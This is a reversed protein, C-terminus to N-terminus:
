GTGVQKQLDTYSGTELHCLPLPARASLRTGCGPRSEIALEGSVLDLRERMSALGFGSAQGIRVLDPNFGVGDDQVELTLRDAERKLLVQACHAHSHHTINSLAEQAVHYFTLELDLPLRESARGEVQITVQMSGDANLEDARQGLAAELGWQDLIKPHLEMALHRIDSLAHTILKRLNQLRQTDAPDSSMELLKLYLLVSALTQAVKDHLDRAIRQREVEQAHLVQQSLLQVRRTREDLSGQMYRFGAALRDIQKDTVLSSTPVPHKEQGAHDLAAELRGLPALVLKMVLLNVAFTISISIVLIIIILANDASTPLTRLYHIFGFAGTLTLLAVTACNALLVKYLLPVHLLHLILSRVLPIM